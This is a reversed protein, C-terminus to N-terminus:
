PRRGWSHPDPVHQEVALPDPVIDGLQADGDQDGEADAKLRSVITNASGNTVRSWRETRCAWSSFAERMSELVPRSLAPVQSRSAAESTARATRVRM